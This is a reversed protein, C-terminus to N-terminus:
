KSPLPKKHRLMRTSVYYGFIILWITQPHAVLREMGGAGLGLYNGSVFLIFATLSFIGFFVTFFRFLPTLTLYLGLLILSINGIFFPLFAGIAHMTAAVNEPFLGVLTTGLGATGMLIFGLKSGKNRGFQHYLLLSGLMMSFGLFVLSANMWSYWPSCVYRAAYIECATNGLDSITNDRVSYDTPWGAAVILQVVFFQASTMWIIAGVYPHRKYFQEITLM